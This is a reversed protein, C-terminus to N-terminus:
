GVTVISLQLLIFNVVNDLFIILLQKECMIWDVVVLQIDKTVSRLSAM